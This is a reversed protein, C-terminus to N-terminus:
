VVFVVFLIFLSVVCLSVRLFGAFMGPGMEMALMVLNSTQFAYDLSVIFPNDCSALAVLECTVRNPSLNFIKLLNTKTQVKMAYHVGTSKKVCHVVSGFGGHGLENLYVFDDPRVQNYTSRMASLCESYAPSSKYPVFLSEYMHSLTGHLLDDFMQSPLPKVSEGASIDFADEITQVFKPTVVSCPLKYESSDKIYRDTILNAKEIKLMRGGFSRYELIDGWCLLLYLLNQEKAYESFSRLLMPEALHVRFELLEDSCALPITGDLEYFKRADALSMKSKWNESRDNAHKDDAEIKSKICGM